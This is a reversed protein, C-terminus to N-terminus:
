VVGLAILAAVLSPPTKTATPVAPRADKASVSALAKYGKTLFSFGLPKSFDAITEHASSDGVTM